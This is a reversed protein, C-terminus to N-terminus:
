HNFTNRIEEMDLQPCQGLLVMLKIRAKPGSLYRAFIVGLRELSKGGGMYDYLPSTSGQPCRSTLVVPIGKTIAKQISQEWQPPVNGAGFGEIVVGKTGEEICRDLLAPNSGLAVKLLEVDQELGKHLPVQRAKEYYFRVEGDVIFGISGTGPAQFSDINRTHLKIVDKPVFINDNFVVLVGRGWSKESCAVQIASVLNGLSDSYYENQSKMSGTFVVTKQTSTILSVLYPFEEITDTGQIVVIGDYHEQLQELKRAMEMAINPTLHPGPKQDFEEIHLEVKSFTKSIHSVLQEAKLGPVIRNLQSDYVSLITGGTALILVKKKVQDIM